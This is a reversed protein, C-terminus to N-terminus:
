DCSVQDVAAERNNRLCCKGVGVEGTFRERFADVRDWSKCADNGGTPDKGEVTAATAFALEDEDEVCGESNTCTSFDIQYVSSHRAVGIKKGTGCNCDVCICDCGAIENSLRGYRERVAHCILTSQTSNITSHGQDIISEDSLATCARGLKHNPGSETARNRYKM